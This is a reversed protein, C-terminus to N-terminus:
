RQHVIIPPNYEDFTLGNGPVSKMITGSVRQNHAKPKLSTRLHHASDARRRNGDGPRRITPTLTACCWIPSIFQFPDPRWLRTTMSRWRADPRPALVERVANSASRLSRALQSRRLASDSLYGGRRCWQQGRGHVSRRGALCNFRRLLVVVKDRYAFSAHM